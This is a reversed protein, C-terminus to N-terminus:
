DTAFTRNKEQQQTILGADVQIQALTHDKSIQILEGKSYLYIRSEGISVATIKEDYVYIMAMTAGSKPKQTCIIQNIEEICM